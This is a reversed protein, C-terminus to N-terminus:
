LQLELVQYQNHQPVEEEVSPLPSHIAPKEVSLEL